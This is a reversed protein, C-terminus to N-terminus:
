QEGTYTVQLVKVMCDDPSVNYIVELPTVLLRRDSGYEEGVREASSRLLQDIYDSTDAVAQRDSVRTWIRTLEDQAEEDWVVTCRM